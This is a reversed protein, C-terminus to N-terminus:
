GSQYEAPGAVIHPEIASLNFPSIPPNADTVLVFMTGNIAPDGKYETGNFWLNGGPQITTGSTGNINDLRTYNLGLQSIWAVFKPESANSRTVYQLDPGVLKGPTEWTLNLTRGPYTLNGTVHAVTNSVATPVPNNTINLAPFNNWKIPPRSAKCSKIHPALLTWTMSQTIGPTFWHAVPFLGELQRFTYQQRAETSIASLLAASTSRDDLHGLFGYVGSEGFRTAKQNFDLWDLIGTFNPYQYTCTNNSLDPRGMLRAALMAHGVEQQQFFAILSRDDATLGAAEWDSVNWRELGYGFLDYEIHEVALVLNFSEYDFASDFHYDPVGTVKVGGSPPPLAPLTSNSARRLPPSPLGLTTELLSSLILVAVLVDL